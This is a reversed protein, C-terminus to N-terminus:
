SSKRIMSEWSQAGPETLRADDQTAPTRRGGQPACHRRSGRLGTSSPGLTLLGSGAGALEGAAPLLRAHSRELAARDDLALAATAELCCLAEYLLDHPPEPVARLAVAAEARRGAELLVLPEAWPRYPGWDAHPDVGSPGWDAHPDADSPPMGLSLLALPLLGRELGPMGAGNLRAAAARYATEAGERHESAALRLAAYWETFVGVLPLEHREALRDAAAAHEDATRFDALASRSQIRILHGLVEFTTLGHRASVAILEAGIRDRRAALGARTCSQM